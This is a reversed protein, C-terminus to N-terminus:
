CDLFRRHNLLFSICDLTTFLVKGFLELMATTTEDKKCLLKMASNEQKQKSQKSSLWQRSLTQFGIRTLQSASEWHSGSHTTLIILPVGLSFDVEEVHNKCFLNLDDACRSAATESTDL